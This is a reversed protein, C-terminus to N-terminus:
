AERAEAPTTAALCPHLKAYQRRLAAVQRQLDPHLILKLDDLAYLICARLCTPRSLCLAGFGSPNLRAESCESSLSRLQRDSLTQGWYEEVKGALFAIDIREVIGPSSPGPTKM